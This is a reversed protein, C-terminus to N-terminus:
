DVYFKSNQYLNWTALTIGCNIKGTSIYKRVQPLSLKIIGEISENGEQHSFNAENENAIDTALFSHAILDEHGPGIYFKGLSHWRKAVLGTEELLEQKAASLDDRDGVGGGPVQYVYNKVPYRYERIFYFRNELSRALVFVGVEKSLYSYIGENGDPRLVKDEHFCMWKNQYIVKSSLTEWPSHSM